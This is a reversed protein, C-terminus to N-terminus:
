GEGEGGGGGGRVEGVSRTAQPPRRGERRLSRMLPAAEVEMTRAPLKPPAVEKRSEDLSAAAESERLSRNSTMKGTRPKM